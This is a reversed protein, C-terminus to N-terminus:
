FGKFGSTRNSYRLIGDSCKYTTNLPNPPNKRTIPMNYGYQAANVYLGLGFVATHFLSVTVKEGEGTQGKNYLAALIGATLNM